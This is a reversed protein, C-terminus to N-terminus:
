ENEFTNIYTSEVPIQLIFKAGGAPMNDVELTGNHAQAFGKAISLGLGTGGTATNPLRYFKEFIYNIKDDPIGKGDDAIEIKLSGEKIKVQIDITSGPPTYQIANSIINQLIQEVLVGDIKVLPLEENSEYMISHLTSKELNNHIVKHILEQIDYWDKQLQVFDSELRSMSLLNGVQGNLRHGAIDIETFLEMRNEESLNQHNDKLTDIAGIITSIPTRLEHSLSNLLTDYLGITKEREEKDRVNKEAKRIRTTFFANMLAIVFYMLFLLVDEPTDVQFTHRPPIFFFNWILASGIAIVMIPVVEFLMAMLSVALLLILAVSHYSIFDMSLYCTFSIISILGFGLLYQQPINKRINEFIEM